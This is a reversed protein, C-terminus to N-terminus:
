KTLITLEDTIGSNKFSYKFNIVISEPPIEQNDKNTKVTIEEINLYSFYKDIMDKLATRVVFDANQQNTFVIAADFGVQSIVREGINTLITLKLNERVASRTDENMDFYGLDGSRLPFKFNIQPSM